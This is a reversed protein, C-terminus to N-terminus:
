FVYCLMLEWLFLEESVRGTGRGDPGPVWHQRVGLERGGHQAPGNGDSAAERATVIAGEADGQKRVSFTVGLSHVFSLINASALSEGKGGREGGPEDLVELADLRVVAVRDLIDERAEVSAGGGRGRRRRGGRGVPRKRPSRGVDMMQKRLSSSHVGRQSSKVKRLQGGPGFSHRSQRGGLTNGSIAGHAGSGGTRSQSIVQKAGEHDSCIQGRHAGDEERLGLQGAGRILLAVLCGELAVLTPM